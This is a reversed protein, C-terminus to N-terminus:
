RGREDAMGRSSIERARKKREGSLRFWIRGAAEILPFICGPWSSELYRGGKKPIEKVRHAPDLTVEAIIVGEEDDLREKLAGDSDAIATYGPFRSRQTLFPLGPLSSEWPGCKNIMVAPIGLLRAYYQALDRLRRADKDLESRPFLPSEATAPASHPMLLLDVSQSQMLRPIFCHQNEYCIGVGIRGIGTEIVHNGPDGRTFYAEFAAPTQKRVRGLERGDPGTLVFTNYFDEGDAELFSTGLYVGLRKSHKGLWQVTPGNTPEAGDWIAKTFIYGTPMFEPLVILRAEKRAAAEVFGLARKLNNEILGNESQMQIAAIRLMAPKKAAM